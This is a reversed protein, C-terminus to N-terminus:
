FTLDDDGLDGSIGKFELNLEVFERYSRYIHARMVKEAVDLDRGRLVEVLEAHQDVEKQKTSEQGLIRNVLTIQFSIAAYTGILRSHQSLDMITQHIQMSDDLLSPVAPDYLKRQMEAFFAELATIQEDSAHRTTLRIALGELMARISYIEFVDAMTLPRVIPGRNPLITVIGEGALLRVAERIPTPSIGLQKSLKSEVIRDGPRLEGNLILKKLLVVLEQSLNQREAFYSKMITDPLMWFTGTCIRLGSSCWSSVLEIKRYIRCYM